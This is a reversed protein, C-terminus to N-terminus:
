HQQPDSQPAPPLKRKFMQLQLPQRLNTLTHAPSWINHDLTPPRSPLSSQNLTPPHLPQLCHHHSFMPLLWPQCSLSSLLLQRPHLSQAKKRQNINLTPFQSRSKTVQPEMLHLWNHKSKHFQLHHQHAPIFFALPSFPILDLHGDQTSELLKSSITFTSLRTAVMVLGDTHRVQAQHLYYTYNISYLNLM